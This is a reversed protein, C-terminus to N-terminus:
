DEKTILTSGIGMELSRHAARAREGAIVEYGIHKRAADVSTILEVVEVDLAYSWDYINSNDDDLRLIFAILSKIRFKSWLKEEIEKSFFDSIYNSIPSAKKFNFRTIIVEASRILKNQSPGAFYYLMGLTSGCVIIVIYCAINFTNM